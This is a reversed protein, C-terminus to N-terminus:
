LSILESSSCADQAARSCAIEQAYDLFDTKRIRKVLSIVDFVTPNENDTVAVCPPADLGGINRVTVRVYTDVAEVTLSGVNYKM